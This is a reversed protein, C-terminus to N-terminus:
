ITENQKKLQEEVWEIEGKHRQCRSSRQSIPLRTHRPQRSDFIPNKCHLSLIAM